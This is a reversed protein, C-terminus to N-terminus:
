TDRPQEILIIAQSRYTPPWFFALLLFITVVISWTIAIIRKRRRLMNLYDKLSKSSEELDINEISKNM